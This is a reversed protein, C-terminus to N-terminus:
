EDYDDDDEVYARRSPRRSGKRRARQARREDYRWTGPNQQEQVFFRQNSLASAIADRRLRRVVNVEWMLRRFPLGDEHKQLVRSLIEMTTLAEADIDAEGRLMLLESLREMPVNFDENVGGTYVLKFEAPEEAPELHFVGGVWPLHADYWEKLGYILGLSNHFWLALRDGEETECYIQILDPTDPFLERSVFPVYCTGAIYHHLAPSFTVRKPRSTAPETDDGGVDMLFTDDTQEDLKYKWEEPPLLKDIEEGEENLYVRDDYALGEPLRGVEEPLSGELCYNEWGVWLFRSDELLQQQLMTSIEPYTRSGPFVELVRQCLEGLSHTKMDELMYDGIQDLDEATIELVPGAIIAGEEAAPALAALLEASGEIDGSMAQITAIIDQRGAASVWAPGPVLQGKGTQLLEDLLAAPDSDQYERWVIMSLEKAPITERQHDLIKLAFELPNGGRPVDQVADTLKDLVTEDEFNDWVVDEPDDTTLDITWSTLAIRDDGTLIFEAHDPTTKRLLDAYYDGDRGYHVALIAGLLDPTAPHGLLDVFEQAARDIPRRRDVHSPDISATLMWQRNVQAFLPDSDLVLRVLATLAGVAEESSDLELRSVIEQSIDLTRMPARHEVLAELALSKLLRVATMRKPDVSTERELVAAELSAEVGPGVRSEGM